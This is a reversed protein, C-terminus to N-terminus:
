NLVSSNVANVEGHKVHFMKLPVAATSLVHEINKVEIATILMQANQNILVHLIKHQNETDLESGLDDILYTMRQTQTQELLEGQALIMAYVLLKQQGRSLHHRADHNHTEILLDARHPGHLTIGLRQEDALSRALASAYDREQPWGSQYSVNFIFQPLLKEAINFFLPKWAQIYNKRHQDLIVGHHILEDTWAQLEAKSVHNKLATNRQKLAREYKRWCSEFAIDYYFLGWNLFKRRESPSGELLLHSQADILQLPFSHAIKLSSRLSEDNFRFQHAGHQHREFGARHPLQVSIHNELEAFVSCKGADHAILPQGYSTRFSRGLSLYYCAELLSTKGSGNEGHLVNIKLSFEDIRVQKLNRFQEIQSCILPM